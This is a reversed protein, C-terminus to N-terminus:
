AKKQKIANFETQGRKHALKKTTIKRDCTVIELTSQLRISTYEHSKKGFIDM